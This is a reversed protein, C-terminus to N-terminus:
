VTKVAAGADVPLTVGTIYRAEDSALFLIANTVDIPEVWPTPLLHMGYSAEEFDAETPQELDPRFMRYLDERQIMPTNCNTPHVTNVRIGAAGYENALTRMLGVLGHKAAVYHGFMPFGRLGAGSSTIVVSGGRGGAVIHPIAARCTNWQGTLTIEIMEAWEQPPIEVTPMFKSFIAASSICIDLRGLEAVAHSVFTATAEADRIDVQRWVIPVGIDAVIRATEELDEVSPMPYGASEIPACADLGVIAAGEKAFEIAHSRGQGRAIGTVFVVRGDFRGM